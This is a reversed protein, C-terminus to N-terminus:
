QNIVAFYILTQLKKDAILHPLYNYMGFPSTYSNIVVSCAFKWAFSLNFRMFTFFLTDCANYLAEFCSACNCATTEM